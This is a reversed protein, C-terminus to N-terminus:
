SVKFESIVSRRPYLAGAASNQQNYYIYFLGNRKFQPHFAISLLGEENDVFPKRDVINLFEKSRSGDSGKQVILIRGEQQVIFLQGSADPAESMWLTRKLELQPFIPRMEIKPLSDARLTEALLVACYLLTLKRSHFNMGPPTFCSPFGFYLAVQLVLSFFGGHGLQLRFSIRSVS